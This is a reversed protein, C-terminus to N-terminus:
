VAVSWRRASDVLGLVRDLISIETGLKRVGCHRRPREWGSLGTQGVYQPCPPEPGLAGLINYVLGEPTAELPVLRDVIEGVTAGPAPLLDYLADHLLPPPLTFSPSSMLRQPARHKRRSPRRAPEPM